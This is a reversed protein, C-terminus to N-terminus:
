QDRWPFQLDKLSVGWLFHQRLVDLLNGFDTDPECDQVHDQNGTIIIQKNVYLHETITAALAALQMPNKKVIPVFAELHTQFAQRYTDVETLQALRRLNSLM